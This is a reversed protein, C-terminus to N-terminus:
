NIKELFKKAKNIVAEDFKKDAKECLAIVEDCQEDTMEAIQGLHMSTMEAVRAHKPPLQKEKMLKEIKRKM